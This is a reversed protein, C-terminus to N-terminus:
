GHLLKLQGRIEGGANKATHVNVYYGAPNLGYGVIQGADNIGTASTLTWGSNPPLLSNLDLGGCPM